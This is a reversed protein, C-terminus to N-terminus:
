LAWVLVAMTGLVVFDLKNLRPLHLRITQPAVNMPVEDLKMNFLQKWNQHSRVHQERETELYQLTLCLRSAFREPSLKFYRLPRMLGYFGVILDERQTTKMLLAISVLMLSLRAVQLAGQTLGEYTLAIDLPLFSLYEGPTSFGYVLFISVFLWRMRFLMHFSHTVRFKLLLVILLVAFVLMQMLGLSPMIIGIFILTLIKVTPHM